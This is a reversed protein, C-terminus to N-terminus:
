HSEYQEERRKLAPQLKKPRTFGLERECFGILDRFLSLASSTVLPGGGTVNGTIFSKASVENKAFHRLLVSYLSKMEKVTPYMQNGLDSKKCKWIPNDPFLRQLLNVDGTGMIPSVITKDGVQVKFSYMVFM